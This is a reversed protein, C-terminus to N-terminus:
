LSNYTAFISYYFFLNSVLVFHTNISLFIFLFKFPGNGYLKESNQYNEFKLLLSYKQFPLFKNYM